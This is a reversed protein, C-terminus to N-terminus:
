TDGRMKKEIKECCVKPNRHIEKGTFRLVMWGNRVLYRDRRKDRAKQEPTSHYAHGDCEIAIKRKPFALDLRYRGVREQTRPNHGRKYLADFLRREIPSETKLRQIRARTWRNIKVAAYIFVSLATIITWMEITLSM